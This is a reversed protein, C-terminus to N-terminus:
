DNNGEDDDRDGEDGDNDSDDVRTKRVTKKKDMPFPLSGEVPLVVSRKEEETPEMNQTQLVPCYWLTFCHVVYRVVLLVVLM